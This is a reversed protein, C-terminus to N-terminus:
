ANFEQALDDLVRFLIAYAEEKKAEYGPYFFAYRGGYVPDFELRRGYRYGRWESSKGPRTSLYAGARADNYVRVEMGHLRVAAKTSRKLLGPTHKKDFRVLEKNKVRYATEVRAGKGRVYQTGGYVPTRRQIEKQVVQGAPLLRKKAYKDADPGVSKIARRVEPLNRVTVIAESM